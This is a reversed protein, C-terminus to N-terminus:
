SLDETVALCVEPFEYGGVVDEFSIDHKLFLKSLEDSDFSAISMIMFRYLDTILYHMHSIKQEFEDISGEAADAM